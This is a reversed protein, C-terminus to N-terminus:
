SGDADHAAVLRRIGDELKVFEIGLVRRARAANPRAGWQLFHLQGKPVLPPKGTLIAFGETATAALKALWLPLVSPAKVNLADAVVQGMEQLTVYRESLIFRTGPEAREEARVHGEGVDDSFVVPMGGPLVGPVKGDRMKDVFDNIGPSGAPGPGYVASPHLFVAPLGLEVSAVVRRDAEQKSREYFTGKPEPDIESEDYEAGPAARFVDITSTYVFRKVKARLAEACMTQTGGVNVREFTGPNKLWQEPLGAAHYVVDVGTMAARVSDAETVDGRVIEVPAPVTREAKKVDRVLVRVPRGRTQLARVIANGVLGTAGTVLTTMNAAYWKECEVDDRPM